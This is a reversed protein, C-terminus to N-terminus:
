GIVEQEVMVKKVEVAGFRRLLAFLAATVFRWAISLVSGLSWLTVFLIISLVFPLISSSGSATDPKFYTRVRQDIIQSLVDAISEQGLVPRGVIGSLRLRGQELVLGQTNLTITTNKWERKLQILVQPARPDSPQIGAMQLLEADSPTTTVASEDIAQNKQLTLLFEDVTVKEQNAKKFEPNMWGLVRTLVVHSTQDISLKQLLEEGNKQRIQVYYFSTILFSISLIIWVMGYQVSKRIRIHLSMNLIQRMRFLGIAALVFAALLSLIFTGDFVFFISPIFAAVIAAGSLRNDSSVFPILCLLSIGISFWIIPFTWSGSVTADIAQNITLWGFFFLLFLASLLMGLLWQKKRNYEM